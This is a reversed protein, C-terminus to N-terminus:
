IENKFPNSLNEDKKGRLEVEAKKRKKQKKQQKKKLKRIAVSLSSSYSCVKYVFIM